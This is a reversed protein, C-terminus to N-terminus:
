SASRYAYFKVVADNGTTNRITIRKANVSTLLIQTSQAQEDISRTYTDERHLSHVGTGTDTIDIAIGAQANAASTALLLENSSYGIAYYTTATALPDPLTGGTTLTIPQTTYAFIDSAATLRNTATDVSFQVPSTNDNSDTTVKVPNDSTILICNATDSLTIEVSENTPVAYRTGNHLDVVSNIQYDLDENIRPVNGSLVQFRGTYKLRDTM